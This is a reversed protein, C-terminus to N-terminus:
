FGMFCIEDYMQEKYILFDKKIIKSTRGILNVYDRQSINIKDSM